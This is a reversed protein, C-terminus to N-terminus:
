RIDLYSFLESDTKKHYKIAFNSSFANARLTQFYHRVTQQNNNKFTQSPNSSPGKM